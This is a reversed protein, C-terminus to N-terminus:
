DAALQIEISGVRVTTENIPQMGTELLVKAAHVPDNTVATMGHIKIQSSKSIRLSPGQEFEICGAILKPALLSQLTEVSIDNMGVDITSVLKIGAENEPAIPGTTRTPYFTHCLQLATDDQALSPLDVRTYIPNGKIVVADFPDHQIDRGSLEDSLEELNTPEFTLWDNLTNYQRDVACLELNFNGFRFGATSFGPQESLPWGPTLGISFLAKSISRLDKIDLVATLHDAFSILSYSKPM